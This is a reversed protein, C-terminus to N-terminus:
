NLLKKLHSYLLNRSKFGISKIVDDWNYKSKPHVSGAFLITSHKSFSITPMKIDQCDIPYIVHKIGNIIIVTDFLEKFIEEDSAEPFYTKIIEIVADISRLKNEDCEIITCNPDSYTTCSKILSSNNSTKSYLKIIVEKITKPKFNKQLYIMNKRYTSVM